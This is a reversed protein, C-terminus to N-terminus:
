RGAEAPARDEVLEAFLARYHVMAQRLDETEAEGHATRRSIEHAARYNEVVQPHDVSLDRERQEFDDVPYGRERMVQQILDDAEGVAGEPDDVFRAQTAEWSRLYRDRAVPNLSVVDLEERRKRREDLDSEAERRTPADEVARDYEPGFTERLGRTRRDRVVYWAIAGIVVIAAAIVVIWIWADM